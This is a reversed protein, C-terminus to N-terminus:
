RFRVSLGTGTFFDDAAANLGWGARIDWQIDDSILFTFGANVFHQPQASEAGHPFFAFWETYV